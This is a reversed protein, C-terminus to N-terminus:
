LQEIITSDVILMKVIIYLMFFQGPEMLIFVAAVKVLLLFCGFTLSHDNTQTMKWKTRVKWFGSKLNM